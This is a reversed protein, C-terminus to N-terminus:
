RVPESLFTARPEPCGASLELFEWERGSVVAALALEFATRMPKCIVPTDHHVVGAEAADKMISEFCIIGEFCDRLDLLDLCVEAHTIDTCPPLNLWPCPTLAHKPVSRKSFPKSCSSVGGELLPPPVWSVAAHKTAFLHTRAAPHGHRTQIIILGGANTFIYKPMPISNLLQKLM